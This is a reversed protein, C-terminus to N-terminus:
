RGMLSQKKNNSFDHVSDVIQMYTIAGENKLTHYITKLFLDCTVKDINLGNGTNSNLCEVKQLGTATAM